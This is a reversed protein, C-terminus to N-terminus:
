PAQMLVLLRGEACEAHSQEARSGDTLLSGAAAPPLRLCLAGGVLANPSKTNQPSPRLWLSPLRTAVGVAVVAAVAPALLYM